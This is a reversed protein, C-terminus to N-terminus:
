LDLQVQIGEDANELTLGSADAPVDFVMAVKYTEGGALDEDAGDDYATKLLLDTAKSDLEYTTGDSDTVTWADYGIAGSANDPREVQLYVVLYVGDATSGEIEGTTDTKTFTLTGESSDIADGLQSLDVNAEVTATPEADPTEGAVATPEANGLTSPDPNPPGTQAWDKTVNSAEYCKAAGDVYGNLFWWTRVAGRGHSDADADENDGSLIFIYQVVTADVDVSGLRNRLEADQTWAGAYCDAMYEIEQSTLITPDLCPTSLCKQMGLLTQVHHGIEHAIAASIIFPVNGVADFQYNTFNIDLYVTNDPPCYFPGSGPTGDVAFSTAPGCGTDITGTFPVYAAPPVYNLGGTLIPFERAWFSDTDALSGQFLSLIEDVNDPVDGDGQIKTMQGMAGSDVTTSGTDEPTETPEDTPTGSGGDGTLSFEGLLDERAATEAKWNAAAGLQTIVVNFSGDEASQCSVWAAMDVSQEDGSDDTFAFTFTVDTSLVGDTEVPDSNEIGTAGTINAVSGLGYKTLCADNDLADAYGEVYVISGSDDLRLMNYDAQFAEDKVEWSNDWSLSYGFGPSTYTNGSVGSKSNTQASAVGGAGLLRLFLVAVTAVVMAVRLGSGQFRRM